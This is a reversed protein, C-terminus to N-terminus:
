LLLSGDGVNSDSDTDLDSDLYSPAMPTVKRVPPEENPEGFRSPVLQPKGKDDYVIRTGFGLTPNIGSVSASYLYEWIGVVKGQEEKVSEKGSVQKYIPNAGPSYNKIDLGLAQRGGGINGTVSLLSPEGKQDGGESRVEVKQLDKNTQLLEGEEKVAAGQGSGSVEEVTPLDSLKDKSRLNYSPREKEKSTSM